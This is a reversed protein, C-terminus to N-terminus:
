DKPNTRVIQIGVEKCKKLYDANFQNRPFVLSKAHSLGYKKGAKNWAKADALFQDPTQGPENCYYHAYSHSAVEQGQTKIIYNVLTPAYHLPDDNEGQGVSYKSIFNYASLDPNDYLPKEKPINEGLEERNKNMLLGVTAWSCHVGSREFAKLIQPILERTNLFYSKYSSTNWKEFGGWHLEFDLSIIFFNNKM